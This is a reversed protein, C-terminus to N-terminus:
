FCEAEIAPALHEKWHPMLPLCCLRYILWCAYIIDPHYCYGSAIKGHAFEHRLAPGPRYVFLLDIENVVPATFIQELESRFKDVIDSLARDEQLMDHKIKSFDQIRSKLVYRISNEVQPVLLHAASVFDGQMFRAFGLAFTYRQPAPIFPSYQAIANFHRESLPYNNEITMRAPEIKGAVVVHRQFKHNESFTKKLWEDSPEGTLSAGPAEAVIKGEHDFYSSKMMAMLPSNRIGELAEEKLEELSPSKSLRAFQLLADPLTINEFIKIIGAQEDKFDLPVM